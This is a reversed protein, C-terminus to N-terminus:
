PNRPLLGLKDLLDLLQDRREPDALAERVMTVFEQESYNGFM